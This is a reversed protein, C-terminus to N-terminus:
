TASVLTAIKDSFPPTLIGRETIIGTILVNPTIDFAPYRAMVGSPAVRQDGLQLVEAPDREEIPISDGDPLSPDFTSLPAAVYFPIGHHHSLVALSYTGIKNAVDGNAAIRDAGVIVLSVEKRRMFHGAMNDTILTVPIGDKQLEWATLRAGQLFPRTEDAIVNLVRGRRHASRVVGLATGYGATALAGANCHTLITAREPVVDVGSEGIAVNTLVDDVFIRHAEEILASRVRSAEEQAMGLVKSFLRNLAWRLNVATPRTRLFLQGFPRLRELLESGRQAEIRQAALAMGMAAAVGIAPAGRVAMEKIALAVEEPDRLELYVEEEPLRRQDLLVVAGDRWAITRFSPSLYSDIDVPNGSPAIATEEKLL